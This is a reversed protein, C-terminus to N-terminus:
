WNEYGNQLYKARFNRQGAILTPEYTGYQKPIMWKKWLKSLTCAILYDRILLLKRPTPTRWEQLMKALYFPTKIFCQVESYYAFPGQDHQSIQIFRNRVTIDSL